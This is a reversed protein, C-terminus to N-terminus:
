AVKEGEIVKSEILKKEEIILALAEIRQMMQDRGQPVHEVQLQKPLMGAALKVFDGPNDAIMNQICEEGHERWAQYTDRYFARYLQRAEGAFGIGGYTNGKQFPM